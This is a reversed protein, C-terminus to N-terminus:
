KGPMRIPSPLNDVITTGLISCLTSWFLFNNVTLKLRVYLYHFERFIKFNKRIIFNKISRESESESESKSSGLLGENTALPNDDNRLLQLLTVLDIALILKM